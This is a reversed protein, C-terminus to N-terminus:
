RGQQPSGMGSVPSSSSQYGPPLPANHLAPSAFPDHTPQPYTMYPSTVASTVAPSAPPPAFYGGASNNSTPPSVYGGSGGLNPSAAQASMNPSTQMQIAQRDLYVPQIAITGDPLHQMLYQVNGQAQGGMGPSAAANQLLLEDMGNYAGSHSMSPTSVVSNSGAMRSKSGPSHSPSHGSRSGERDEPQLSALYAEKELEAERIEIQKQRRKYIIFGVILCVAALAGIVIGIIPGIGLGSSGFGGSAPESKKTTDQKPAYSNMWSSQMVDYVQVDKGYGVQADGTTSLGGFVVMNAGAINCVHNHRPRAGNTTLIQVWTMTVLDLSWVDQLTSKSNQDYGGFIIVKASETLVSCHNQRPSPIPGLTLQTGFVLADGKSVDIFPLSQFSQYGRQGATSSFGGFIYIRSNYIHATGSSFNNLVASSAAGEAVAATLAATWDGNQFRDIENTSSGDAFSGGLFWAAGTSLDTVFSAAKRNAWVAAQAAPANFTSWTGSETNYEYLFPDAGNGTPATLWLKTGDKSMTASHGGVKPPMLAGGTPATMNTWAPASIPWSKTLDLAYLENSYQLTASNIQGGHIYIHNKNAASAHHKFSTPADISPPAVTPIPVATTTATGTPKPVTTGTTNTTPPAAGQAHTSMFINSSLSLSLVLGLVLNQALTKM